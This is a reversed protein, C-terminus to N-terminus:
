LIEITVDYEETQLLSLILDGNIANDKEVEIIEEDSGTEYYDLDTEFIFEVLMRVKKKEGM